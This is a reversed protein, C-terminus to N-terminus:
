IKAEGVVFLGLRVAKSLLAGYSVWSYIPIKQRFHLKSSRSKHKTGRQQSGPSNKPAFTCVFMRPRGIGIRGELNLHPEGVIGSLWNQLSGGSYVDTKVFYRRGQTGGSGPWPRRPM